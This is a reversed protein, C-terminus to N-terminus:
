PAPAKEPPKDYSVQYIKLDGYFPSHVEGIMQGHTALYAYAEDRFDKFTDEGDGDGNVMVRDNMIWFSPQRVRIAYKAKLRIYSSFPHDYLANWFVISGYVSANPPVVGRLGRTVAAYDATRFERILLANGAAQGAGFLACALAAAQWLRRNLIPAAFLAAVCIAMYPSAIVLYRPTKNVMILFWPLVPLLLALLIGAVRRNNKWLWFASGFLILVLPARMPVPFPIGSVQRVGFFGKLRMVEGTLKGLPDRKAMGGYLKSAERQYVSDTNARWVTPIFFLLVAAVLLWLRKQRWFGWGWEGLMLLGIGAAAPAANVHINMAVGLSLGAAFALVGSDARRSRFYLLVALVSFM